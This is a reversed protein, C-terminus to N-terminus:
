PSARIEEPPAVFEDVARYDIRDKLPNQYFFVYSRSRTLVPWRMTRMVRDGGEERVNFAVKFSGESFDGSPRV